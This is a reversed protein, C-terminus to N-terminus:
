VQLEDADINQAFVVLRIMALEAQAATFEPDIRVARALPEEVARVAERTSFSMVAGARAHLGQLYLLYAEDSRTLPKVLDNDGTGTSFWGAIAATVIVLATGPAILRSRFRDPLLVPEGP